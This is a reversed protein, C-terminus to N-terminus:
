LRGLCARGRNVSLQPEGVRIAYRNRAFGHGADGGPSSASRETVSPAEGPRAPRRDRLLDHRPPDQHALRIDLDNQQGSLPGSLGGASGLVAMTSPVTKLSGPSRGKFWADLAKSRTKM